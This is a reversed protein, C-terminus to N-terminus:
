VDTKINDEWGHRHKGLIREGAPKGVLINCINRMQGM